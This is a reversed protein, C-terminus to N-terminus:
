LVIKHALFKKFIFNVFFCLIMAKLLLNWGLNFPHKLISQWILLQSNFFFIIDVRVISEKNAEKKELSM